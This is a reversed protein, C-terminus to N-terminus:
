RGLIVAKDFTSKCNSCRMKNASVEHVTHTKCIPCLQGKPMTTMRM